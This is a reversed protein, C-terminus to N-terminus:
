DDWDDMLDDFIMFELPDDSKSSKSSGRGSSHYSGSSPPRYLSSKSSSAENSPKFILYLVYGIIGTFVLGYPNGETFTTILSAFFAVVLFILVLIACGMSKGEEEDFYPKKV